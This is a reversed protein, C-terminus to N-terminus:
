SISFVYDDGVGNPASVKVAYNVDRSLECGCEIDIQLTDKIQWVSASAGTNTYNWSPTTMATSDYSIRQSSGLRGFYVDMKDLSTVQNTGINKVWVQIQSSSSNTAYITKIKTLAIDREVATATNFTSQFVGMQNLIMVSFGATVIMAVMLIIGESIMFSGM